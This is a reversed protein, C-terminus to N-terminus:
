TIGWVELCEWNVLCSLFFFLFFPTGVNRTEVFGLDYSKLFAWSTWAIWLGLSWLIPIHCGRSPTQFQTHVTRSEQTVVKLASAAYFLTAPSNTISVVSAGLSAGRSWCLVRGNGTQTHTFSRSWLPTQLKEVGLVKGTQIWSSQPHWCCRESCSLHHEEGPSLLCCDSCPWGHQRRCIFVHTRPQRYAWQHSSPGWGPSHAEWVWGLASKCTVYSM